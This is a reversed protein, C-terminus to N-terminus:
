VKDGRLINISKEGYNFLLDIASMNPLFPIGKTTYVQNYQPYNFKQYELKLGAKFFKDEELYDKGGAGSLYTDAKLKQCIEILRETGLSSTKIESEYNLPTKIGLEKLLYEIIYINLEILREWERTYVDEFFYSYKSFFPARNYCRKLSEWHKKQWGARNDIKVEKILQRGLGKTIVPVTLWICGQKACIRNRNQYERHKYQVNDLFVFVDSKDVKDFYGPWPLYQPQHASLIM